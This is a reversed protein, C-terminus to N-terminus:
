RQRVIWRGRFRPLELGGLEDPRSMLLFSYGLAGTKRTAFSRMNDIVHQFVSRGARNPRFVQYTESTGADVSVRVWKTHQALEDLHRDILTGNTVVGVHIGHAGLLAIVDKTGPHALPEGGGILVVARVGSSAFEGVLQILREKTFRGRNLFKGSICEPCALDCFTTPDLDVVLPGPLREGRGVAMASPLVSPQYLKSLLDLRDGNM